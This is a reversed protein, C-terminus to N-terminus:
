TGPGGSDDWFGTKLIWNSSDEAPHMIITASIENIIKISDVIRSAMIILDAGMSNIFSVSGSINGSVIVSERRLENTLTISM